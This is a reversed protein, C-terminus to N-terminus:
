IGNESHHINVGLIYKLGGMDKVTFKNAIAKKVKKCVIHEQGKVVFGEPQKMFVEEKLNGNLFATKIDM